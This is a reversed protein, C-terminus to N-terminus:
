DKCYGPLTLKRSEATELHRYAGGSHRPCDRGLGARILEAAIDLEGLRCTGEHRDWTMRGTLKCSLPRAGVLQQMFTTAEDYGPEGAEPAHLGWLRVPVLEGDVVLVPTDGDRWREVTGTIVAPEDTLVPLTLIFLFFATWSVALAIAKM